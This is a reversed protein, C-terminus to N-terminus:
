GKWHFIQPMADSLLINEPQFKVFLLAFISVFFYKVACPGLFISLLLNRLFMGSSGNMNELFHRFYLIHQFFPM